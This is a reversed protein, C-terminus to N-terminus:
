LSSLFFDFKVSMEIMKAFSGDTANDLIANAIFLVLCSNISHIVLNACHFPFPAASASSWFLRFLVIILPRYSKHSNKALISDGWFDHSFISSWKTEGTVDANNVIASVDDFVFANFLSPSHALFTILIVSILLRHKMKNVIVSLPDHTGISTSGDRQQRRHQQRYLGQGGLVGDPIWSRTLRPCIKQNRVKRELTTLKENLTSLRSRCSMDFANLFDAIRKISGSILEIYERNAWDQQTQRQLAERHVQTVSQSM